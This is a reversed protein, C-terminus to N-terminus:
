TQLVFYIDPSIAHSIYKANKQVPRIRYRLYNKGVDVAKIPTFGHQKLWDLATSNTYFDKKFRVSQVRYKNGGEM